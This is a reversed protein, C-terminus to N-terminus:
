RVPGPLGTQDEVAVFVGAGFASPDIWSCDDTDWLSWILKVARDGDEEVAGNLSVNFGIEAGDEPEYDYDALSIAAEVGWGDKTEFIFAQVTATESWEGTVTIAVPDENGMDAPTLIIQAIGEDYETALLDATLNLYIEVSDENWFRDEHASSVIVDDPTTVAVYLWAADAAVAFEFSPNATESEGPQTGYDVLYWPVNDWDALEGDLTILEEGLPIPVIEGEVYVEAYPPDDQAAIMGALAALMMVMLLIVLRKM